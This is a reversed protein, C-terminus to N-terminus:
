VTINLIDAKAPDTIGFNRSIAAQVYSVKSTDVGAIGCAAIDALTPDVAVIVKKLMEVDALNGGTPGNRVLVRYADIV